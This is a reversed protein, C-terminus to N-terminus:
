SRLHQDRMYAQFSEIESEMRAKDWGLPGAIAEAARRVADAPIPHAWGLGTRRYLLDVIHQPHETEAMHRLTALTVSMDDEIVPPSNTNEPQPRKAYSLPQAPGSPGHRQGVLKVVQQAAQRHFMITAWTLTASDKMGEDHMDQVVAFPMRRGKPRAPDYTIPRAGAWAYEMDSRKVNAGPLLYNFEDLLFRIEEELPRVTEIDGEYVTETPGIVHLDGWPGCFIHEGERNLGAVGQGRCEPPLRVAIHTGKVAVIKRPPQREPAARHNVGDIWVGTFNLLQGAAITATGPAGLSDKLGLRWGHDTREFSTAETYNRVTAGLREADLVADLCLRDPWHFQYDMFTFVSKLREPERFWKMLPRKLAEKPTLRRYELPRRYPDILELIKAGLDVHWGRYASDDYIPIALPLPRLREPTESLFQGRVEVSRKATEMVTWLRKPQWLFEWPTSKPALYRLGCHLIRSSRSTAASSFDDKEVLLVKYGAASLHQASSAGSIGGGVIAVDFRKGDLASLSQRM